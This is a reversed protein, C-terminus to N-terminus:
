TPPQNPQSHKAETLRGTESLLAWMVPKKTGFTVGEWLFLISGMASERAREEQREKREKKKWFEKQFVVFGSGFFNFQRSCTLPTYRVHVCDSRTAKEKRTGNQIFLGPTTDRSSMLRWLFAIKRILDMMKTQRLFIFFRRSSLRSKSKKKKKWKM